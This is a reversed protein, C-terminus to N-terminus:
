FLNCTDAGNGCALVEAWDSIVPLIVGDTLADKVNAIDNADTLTNPLTIMGADLGLKLVQAFHNLTDVETGAFFLAAQIEALINGELEAMLLREVSLIFESFEYGTYEVDGYSYVTDGLYPNAPSSRSQEFFVAVDAYIYGYPNDSYFDQISAGVTIIPYPCSDAGHSCALTALWDEHPQYYGGSLDNIAAPIDTISDPFTVLEAVYALAIIRGFQLINDMEMAAMIIKQRIEEKLEESPNNNLAVLMDQIFQTLEADTYPTGNNYVTEGIQTPGNREGAYFVYADDFSNQLQNAFESYFNLISDYDPSSSMGEVLIEECFEANDGGTLCDQANATNVLGFSLILGWLFALYKKM